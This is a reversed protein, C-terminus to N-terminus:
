RGLAMVNMKEMKADSIALINCENESKGNKGLNLMNVFDVRATRTALRRVGEEAYM